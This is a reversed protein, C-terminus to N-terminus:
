VILVDKYFVVSPCASQGRTSKQKELNFFHKVHQMLYFIILLVFGKEIYDIFAREGRLPSKETVRVVKRDEHGRFGSLM